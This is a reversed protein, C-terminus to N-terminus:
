RHKRAPGHLTVSYTAVLSPRGTIFTTVRATAQLTHHHGLETVASHSLKLKVTVTEHTDLLFSAKGLVTTGGKGKKSAHSGGALLVIEGTIPSGNPNSLELSLSGAGGVALAKGVLATPEYTKTGRAKTELEARERAETEARTQQEQAEKERRAAAEAERQEAEGAEKAHQATEAEEKEKQERAEREHQEREKREKEERERKEQLEKEEQEIQELTRLRHGNVVAEGSRTSIKWTGEGTFTNQAPNITGDPVTFALTGESTKAELSASVQTTGTVTGTMTGPLGELLASGSFAGGASETRILATGDVTSKELKPFTCAKCVAEIAWEGRIDYPSASAVDVVGVLTLLATLMGILVSRMIYDYQIPCSDVVGCVEGTLL